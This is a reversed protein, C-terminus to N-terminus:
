YVFIVGVQGRSKGALPLKYIFEYPTPSNRQLEFKPKGGGFSASIMGREM